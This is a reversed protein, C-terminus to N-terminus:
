SVEDFLSNIRNEEEDIFDFFNDEENNVRRYLKQEEDIIKFELEDLWIQYENNYEVKKDAIAKKSTTPYKELIKDM